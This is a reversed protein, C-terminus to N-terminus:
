KLFQDAEEFVSSAPIGKRRGKKYEQYRYEAEAIWALDIDNLDAGDLSSLLRDALFAREQQPLSLADREIKELLDSM